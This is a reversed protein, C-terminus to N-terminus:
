NACRPSKGSRGRGLNEWRVAFVDERGRFLDRFLRVKSSPSWGNSEADATARGSPLNELETLHAAALERLRDLEALKQRAAEIETDLHVAIGENQVHGRDSRPLASSSVRRFSGARDRRERVGAAASADRLPLQRPGPARAPAGSAFRRPSGFVLRM